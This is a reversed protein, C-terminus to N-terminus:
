GMSRLVPPRRAENPPEVDLDLERILRAFAVRCDAEVRMAPHLKAGGDRTVVTLGEKDVQRRAQQGHDWAESALTLLRLHHQELEWQEVVSLWWRQTAARLHRPANVKPTITM